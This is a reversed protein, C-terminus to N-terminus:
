NITEKRIVIDCSAFASINYYKNILEVNEFKLNYTTDTESYLEIFDGQTELDYNNYQMYGSGGDEKFDRLLIWPKEQWEGLQYKGTGVFESNPIFILFQWGYKIGNGVYVDGFNILSVLLEGNYLVDSNLYTDEIEPVIDIEAISDVSFTVKLFPESNEISEEECSVIFIICITVLLYMIVKRM